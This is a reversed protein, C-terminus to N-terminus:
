PEMLNHIARYYKADNKDALAFVAGALHSGALAQAMEKRPLNGYRAYLEHAKDKLMSLREDYVESKYNIEKHFEDPLMDLLSDTTGALVHELIMKDTLGTIVKHLALYKDFKVKVMHGDAWVVVFGESNGYDLTKLDRPTMNGYLIHYPEAQFPAYARWFICSRNTRDTVLAGTDNRVLGLFVLKEQGGYNVVIRNEPYIIEFLPTYANEPDLGAKFKAYLNTLGTKDAIEGAKIAQESTFSGRTAWRVVGDPTMFPIGLSGDVQELIWQPRVKDYTADTEPQEGHNFFKNFGRAIVRGDADLILGRVTQLFTDSKVSGNYQAQETYGYLTYGTAEDTVKRVDKSAVYTALKDHLNTM